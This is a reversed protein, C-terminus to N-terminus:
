IGILTNLDMRVGDRFIFETVIDLHGFFRNENEVRRTDRPKIKSENKENRDSAL